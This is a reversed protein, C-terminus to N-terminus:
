LVRALTVVIVWTWTGVCSSMRLNLIPARLIVEGSAWLPLAAVERAVDREARTGIVRFLLEQRVVRCLGRVRERVNLTVVRRGDRVLQSGTGVANWHLKSLFFEVRHRDDVRVKLVNSL